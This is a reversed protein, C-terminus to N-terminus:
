EPQSALADLKSYSSAVRQWEKWMGSQPTFRNQAAVKYAEKALERLSLRMKDLVGKRSAVLRLPEYEPDNLYRFLIILPDLVANAFARNSLNDSTTSDSHVRFVALPKPLMAAGVNVGARSWFEADCRHSIAPDFWGCINFIRRHILTVTPEGIFNQAFHELCLEAVGDPTVLSERVFIDALFQQHSLYFDQLSGAVGDEFLFHRFCAVFLAGTAKAHKYMEAVCSKTLLDDQFLFKIWPSSALRVAENWNAVLGLNKPNRYLKIRADFAAYEAAITRTNDSSNDDVIVIELDRFSQTIASDLCDHLYRAGNFTPICISVEAV